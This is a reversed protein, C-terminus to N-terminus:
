TKQVFFDSFPQSILHQLVVWDFTYYLKDSCNKISVGTDMKKNIIQYM